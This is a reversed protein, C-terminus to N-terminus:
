CLRCEYPSVNFVTFVSCYIVPHQSAIVSFENEEKSFCEVVKLVNAGSYSTSLNVLVFGDHYSESCKTLSLIHHM